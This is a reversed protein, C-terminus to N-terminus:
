FSMGKEGMARDVVVIVIVNLFIIFSSVAFITPDLSTNSQQFLWMPLPFVDVTYLFYSLTFENFSMIFVLLYGSIIGSRMLPLAIEAFARLPSAGLTKAAEMLNADQGQLAAVCNRIMFPLLVIIHAIAIQWIGLDTPLNSVIILLSIGLVIAPFVIPLSVLVEIAAKGRFRERVLAYAAPVGCLACVTASVFAILLTTGISETLRATSSSSGFLIEWLGEYWQLSLGTPPFRLSTTSTLSMVVVIAAPMLTIFIIAGALGYVIAMELRQHNPMRRAKM